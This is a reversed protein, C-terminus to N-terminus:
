KLNALGKEHDTKKTMKATKKTKKNCVRAKRINNRWIAWEGMLSKKCAARWVKTKRLVLAQISRKILDIGPHTGGSGFSEKRKKALV